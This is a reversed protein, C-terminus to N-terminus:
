NAYLANKIDAGIAGIAVRAYPIAAAMGYFHHIMGAHCTYAVEVGARELRDAYALGESLLPDFEATHVHAPPQRSVDTARLPSLRPDAPDLTEPCYHKLTWDITAKDLFYGEAFARRSESEAGIDLAPCLLLQLAISPGNELKARQCVAAVLAAGASDGGVAIRDARLGFAAAHEFVETVAAYSDEFAAPFAHEPALRYEVSLVRCESANALMRCLADHTEISGFVGGGGHFYILGPLANSVARMPTYIRIPLPGAPGTLTRNEIQSIPEDNAGVLQSLRSFGVRMESPSMRAVDQAGGAAIMDLFRRAHPDLPM